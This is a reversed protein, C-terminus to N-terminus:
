GQGKKAGIEKNEKGAQKKDEHATKKTSKGADQGKDNNTICTTVEAKIDRNHLYMKLQSKYSRELLTDGDHINAAILSIHEIKAAADGILYRLTLGLGCSKCAGLKIEKSGQAVTESGIVHVHVKQAAGLKARFKQIGKIYQFGEFDEPNWQLMTQPQKAKEYNSYLDEACKKVTEDQEMMLVVQYDYETAATLAVVTAVLLLTAALVTKMTRYICSIIYIGAHLM